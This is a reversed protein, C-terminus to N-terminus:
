DTLPIDKPKDGMLLTIGERIRWKTDITLAAKNKAFNLEHSLQVKIVM